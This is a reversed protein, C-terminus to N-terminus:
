RMIHKLADRLETEERLLGTSDKSTEDTNGEEESSEMEPKQQKFEADGVEQLFPFL